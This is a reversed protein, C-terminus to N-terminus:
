SDMNRQTFRWLGPQGEVRNALYCITLNGWRVQTEISEPTIALGQVQGSAVRQVVGRDNSVAGQYTLYHVRHDPVRLAEFPTDVLDPRSQCRLALLRHDHSVGAQEILWDYHWTGDPLFHKLIVARLM